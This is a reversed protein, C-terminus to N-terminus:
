CTTAFGCSWEVWGGATMLDICIYEVVATAGCKSTGGNGIGTGWDVTGGGTYDGPKYQTGTNDEGDGGTGGGDDDGCSTNGGSSYPDYDEDSASYTLQTGGSGSPPCIKSVTGGTAVVKYWDTTGVIHGFLYHTERSCVVDISPDTWRAKGDRSTLSYAGSWPVYRALSGSLPELVQQRRWDDPWSYGAHWFGFADGIFGGTLGYPCPMAQTVYYEDASVTTVQQPGVEQGVAYNLPSTLALLVLCLSPRLKRLRASSLAPQDTGGAHPARM